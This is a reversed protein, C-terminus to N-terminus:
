IRPLPFPQRKLLKNLERFDNVWCVQSDKKPTIFTPAAWGSSFCKELVGKVCLQKLEQKFLEEQRYPIGYPKSHVPETSDILDLHLQKHPYCGLKDNFLIKHKCLVNCLKIQQEETLHEQKAAINDVLVKRYNSELIESAYADIMDDCLYKDEVDINLYHLDIKIRQMFNEINAGNDFQKINKMDVQTDLWQITDLEFDM